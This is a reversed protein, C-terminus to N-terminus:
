NDREGDTFFPILDPSFPQHLNHKLLTGFTPRKPSPHNPYFLNKKYYTMIKEYNQM